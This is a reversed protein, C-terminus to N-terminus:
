INTICLEQNGQKELIAPDSDDNVLLKGTVGDLVRDRIVYGLESRTIIMFKNHMIGYDPYNSTPSSIKGIGAVDTTWNLTFGTTTINSVTVPSTINIPSAPILDNEDRPLIQYTSKYQALPGIIIGEGSPIIEGM